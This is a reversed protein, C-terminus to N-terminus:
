RSLTGFGTQPAGEPTTDGGKGNDDDDDDMDVARPTATPSTDTQAYVSTGVVALLMGSLLTMAALLKM